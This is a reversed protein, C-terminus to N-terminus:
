DRRGHPPLVHRYVRGDTDREVDRWGAKIADAKTEMEDGACCTRCTLVFPINKYTAAM